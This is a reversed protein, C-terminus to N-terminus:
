PLQRPPAARSRPRPLAIQAAAHGGASRYSAFGPEAPMAEAPEAQAAGPQLIGAGAGASALWPWGALLCSMQLWSASGCLAWADAVHAAALAWSWMTESAAAALRAQSRADRMETREM